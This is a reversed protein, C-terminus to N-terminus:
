HLQKGVTMSAVWKALPPGCLLVLVFRAVQMAMVFGADAASTAAIIAVSDAGGPSTALYATLSDFNAFHILSFAIILGMILLVFISFLVNPLAKLAHLLIAKNFRLGISWGIAIYACTLLAAPIEVTFLGGAQLVTGALLPILLSGAPVKFLRAVFSGLIAVALSYGFHSVNSIAFVSPEIALNSSHGNALRAVLAALLTVIVVRLYQMFAVLRVDAGYAEALVVMASAAGPALGWIATTGPLIQKRMLLWSLGSSVFLLSVTAALFLPWDSAIVQLMSPHLSKAMLCGLLGQALSFAQQPVVLTIDRASFFIACLM